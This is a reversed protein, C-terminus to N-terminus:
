SETRPQVSLFTIFLKVIYSISLLIVMKFVIFYKIKAVIVFVQALGVLAM